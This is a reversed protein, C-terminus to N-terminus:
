TVGSSQTAIEAAQGQVEVEQDVSSIKLVIDAVAAQSTSVIVNNSSPQFGDEKTELTYRGAALHVFQYRGETDTVASQPAPESSPGTLKVTVGAFVDTGGDGNAVTVRGTLSATNQNASQPQGGFVPGAALLLAVLITGRIARVVGLAMKNM